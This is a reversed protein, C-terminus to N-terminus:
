PAALGLYNSIPSGTTFYLINWLIKANWIEFSIFIAYSFSMKGKPPTADPLTEVQLRRLLSTKLGIHLPSLPAAEGLRAPHSESTFSFKKVWEGSCVRVCCTFLRWGVLGAIIPGATGNLIWKLINLGPHFYNIKKECIGTMIESSSCIIDQNCYKMIYCQASFFM